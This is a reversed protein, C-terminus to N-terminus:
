APRRMLSLWVGGAILAVGSVRGLFRVRPASMFWARGLGAAIAWCSDSCSGLVVSTVCM